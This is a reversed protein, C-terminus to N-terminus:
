GADRIVALFAEGYADLKRAGIGSLLSLAARSNPRQAAMDRLVSDHFIVYPPVGAEQALERRKARLAEFLPNAISLRQDFELADRVTNYKGWCVGARDFAEVLEAFNRQGTQRAVAAFLASRRVIAAGRSRECRDM